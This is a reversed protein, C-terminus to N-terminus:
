ATAAADEAGAVFAAADAVSCGDPLVAKVREDLAARGSDTQPISMGHHRLMEAQIRTRVKDEDTEAQVLRGYPFYIASEAGPVRGNHYPHMHGSDLCSQLRDRAEQLFAPAHRVGHNRLSTRVVADLEYMHSVHRRMWATQVHEVFKLGTVASTGLLRVAHGKSLQAREPRAGAVRYHKAMVREVWEPFDSRRRCRDCVRMPHIPAYPKMGRVLRASRLCRMCAKAVEKKARVLWGFPAEANVGTKFRAPDTCLGKWFAEDGEVRARVGRSVLWMTHFLERGGLFDLMVHWARPDMSQLPDFAAHSGSSSSPALRARKEPPEGGEM